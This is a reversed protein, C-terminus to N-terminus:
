QCFLYMKLIQERSKTRNLVIFCVCVNCMMRIIQNTLPLWHKPVRISKGHCTLRDIVILFCCLINFLYPMSFCEFKKLPLPASPTSDMRGPHIEMVCVLPYLARTIYSTFDAVSVTPHDICKVLWWVIADM